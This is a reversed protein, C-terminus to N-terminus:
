KVHWKWDRRICAFNTYQLIAVSGSYWEFDHRGEGFWNACGALFIFYCILKLCAYKWKSVLLCSAM